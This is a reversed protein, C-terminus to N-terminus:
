SCKPEEPRPRLAAAAVPHLPLWTLILVGSFADPYRSEFFERAEAPVFYNKQTEFFGAGLVMENDHQRYCYTCYWHFSGNEDPWEHKM